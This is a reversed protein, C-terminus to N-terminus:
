ETQFINRIVRQQPSMLSLLMDNKPKVPTHPVTEDSIQAANSKTNDSDTSSVSRDKDLKAHSNIITSDIPLLLPPVAVPGKAATM